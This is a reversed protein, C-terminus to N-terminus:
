DKWSAITAACQAVHWHTKVWGHTGYSGLAFMRERRQGIFGVVIGSELFEIEIVRFRYEAVGSKRYPKSWEHAPGPSVAFSHYGCSCLEVEELIFLKAM